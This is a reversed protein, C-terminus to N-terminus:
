EIAESLLERVRRDTDAYAGEGIHHFRLHGRKDALFLHPWYRNNYARWTKYQNDIAVPYKIGHKDLANRVNNLNREYPFEPTHVGVITLGQQSYNEHLSVIHPLTRICNICGFTWFQVAVVRGLLDPLTLPNSNLWAEIGQFEPM